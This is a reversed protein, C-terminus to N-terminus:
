TLDLIQQEFPADIDAVLRHPKPSVLKTRHEGCLNSFSTNM